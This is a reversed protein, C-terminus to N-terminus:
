KTKLIFRSSASSLWISKTEETKIVLTSRPMHGAAVKTHTHKHSLTHTLALVRAYCLRLHAALAVYGIIETEIVTYQTERHRSPLSSTASCLHQPLWQEYGKLCRRRTEMKRFVFM